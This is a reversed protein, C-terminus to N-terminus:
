KKVKKKLKPHVPCEGNRKEGTFWNVEHYFLKCKDCYFVKPLQPQKGIRKELVAKRKREATAKSIAVASPSGSGDAMNYHKGGKKGRM